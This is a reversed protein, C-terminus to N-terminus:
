LRMVCMAAGGQDVLFAARLEAAEARRTAQRELAPDRTMAAVNRWGEAIVLQVWSKAEDYPIPGSPIRIV